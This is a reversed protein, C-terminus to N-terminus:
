DEREKESSLFLHRPTVIDNRVPPCLCRVGMWMGVEVGVCVFMCLYHEFRENRWKEVRDGRVLPYVLLGVSPGVSLSIRKYPQKDTVLFRHNYNDFFNLGPWSFPKMVFTM